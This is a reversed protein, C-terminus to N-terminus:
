TLERGLIAYRKNPVAGFGDALSRSPANEDHIWTGHLTEYRSESLKRGLEAVLGLGIGGRADPLAGVLLLVASDIEKRYRRFRLLDLPGITGNLRALTENFNPVMATFAVAEGEKEVFSILDGDIFPKMQSILEDFVDEEYPLVDTNEAFSANFLERFLRADRRFRRRNFPRTHFGAAAMAATGAEIVERLQEGQETFTWRFTRMTYLPQYGNTELLERYYPPNYTQFAAPGEDFGEVLLGMEQTSCYNFPGMSQKMGRSELWEEATRLLLRACAPDPPAEFFGFFGSRSGYRENYAPYITAAVRGTARGDDFLVFHEVQAHRHFRNRRRNVTRLAMSTLPPVWNRDGEYITWPVEVFARALTRSDGVPVVRLSM